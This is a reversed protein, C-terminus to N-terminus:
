FLDQAECEVAVTDPYRRCDFRQHAMARPSRSSYMSAPSGPRVASTRSKSNTFTTLPFAGAQRLTVVERDLDTWSRETAGFPLGLTVPKRSEPIRQGPAHRSVSPKREQESHQTARALIV